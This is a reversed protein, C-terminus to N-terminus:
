EAIFGSLSVPIPISSINNDTNIVVSDVWTGTTATITGTERYGFGVAGSTPGGDPIDGRYVDIGNIKALIQQGSAGSPNITLRFPVWTGPTAGGLAANTASGLFDVFDGDQNDHSAHVFEWVGPHDARGDLVSVGARNEYKLWYGNEYAANDTINSFYTSGQSTCFGIAIQAETDTALPIYIEGEVNYGSGSAGLAADGLFGMIGGGALDIV